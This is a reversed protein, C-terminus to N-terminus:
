LSMKGIADAIIQKHDFALQMKTSFIKKVDVFKADTADDGAAVGKPVAPLVAMFAYSKVDMRPDRGEEDYIGVPQVKVDAPLELETEESLERLTAELPNENPDKFGGPQAYLNKYPFGGRKVLLVKLLDKDWAFLLMDGTEAKAKGTPNYKAKYNEFFNADIEERSPKYPKSYDFQYNSALQQIEILTILRSITGALAVSSNGSIEPTGHHRCTQPNKARCKSM